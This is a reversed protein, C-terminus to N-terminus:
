VRGIRDLWRVWKHREIWQTISGTEAARHMAAFLLLACTQLLLPASAALSCGLAFGLLNAGSDGLMHRGRLDGPLLALAGATAPILWPSRSWAPDFAMLAAAGALFCKWARGPRVDLLNMANAALVITMWDFLKEAWNGSGGTVVWLAAAGVGAAKLAGTSLTGSERLNRWHGSLGKVSRDGVADDIWGVAFVLFYAAMETGMGGAAFSVIGLDFGTQPMLSGMTYFLALLFALLTGTGAPITQGAYNTRELGHRHLFRLVVPLALKGAVALVLWLAILGMM